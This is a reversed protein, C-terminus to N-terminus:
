KIQNKEFIAVQQLCSMMKNVKKTIAQISAISGQSEYVDKDCTDKVETSIKKNSVQKLCSLVLRGAAANDGSRSSWRWILGCISAGNADLYTGERGMKRQLEVCQAGESAGLNECIPSMLNRLSNADGWSNVSFFILALILLNKM